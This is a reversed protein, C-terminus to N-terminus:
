RDIEWSVLHLIITDIEGWVHTTGAREVSGDRAVKARFLVACIYYRPALNTPQPLNVRRGLGLFFTSITGRLQEPEPALSGNRWVQMALEICL